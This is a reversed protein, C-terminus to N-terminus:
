KLLATWSQPGFIGDATVGLKKQAAKIAKETLAGASGDIKDTYVGM